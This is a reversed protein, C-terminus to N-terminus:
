RFSRVTVGAFPVVRSVKGGPQYQEPDALAEEAQRRAESASRVQIDMEEDTGCPWVALVTWIPGKRPDFSM